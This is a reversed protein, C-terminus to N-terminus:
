TMLTALINISQPHNKEIHNPLHRKGKFKKHCLPCEFQKEAFHIRKHQDLNRRSPFKKKCIDCVHPREGTHINIHDRLYVPRSFKKHCYPCTPAVKSHIKKHAKMDSLRKYDHHCIPCEYRDQSNKYRNCEKKTYESANDNRNNNNNNSNNNNNNNNSAFNPTSSVISSHASPISTLTSCSPVPSPLPKPEVNEFKVIKVFLNNNNINISNNNNTSINMNPYNFGCINSSANNAAAYNCPYMNIDNSPMITVTQSNNNSINYNQNVNAINLYSNNCSINSLLSPSINIISPSQITELPLPQTPYTPIVRMLPISSIPYVNYPPSPINTQTVSPEYIKNNLTYFIIVKDNVDSM